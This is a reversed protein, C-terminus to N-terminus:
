PAVEEIAGLERLTIKQAENLGRIGTINLREYPRDHRLTLVHECSGLDWIRITGDDGCSALRRGDPSVRLSQITGEHAARMSVCKATEVDWWRLKGDSGGSILQDGSPSWVLAYVM